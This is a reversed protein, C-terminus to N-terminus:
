KKDVMSFKYSDDHWVSTWYTVAFSHPFLEKKEQETLLTTPSWKDGIGPRKIPMAKNRIQMADDNSPVWTVPYFYWSPLSEIKDKASYIKIADYILNPGTEYTPCGNSARDIMMQMAHIWFNVGSKSIMIANPNKHNHLGCDVEGLIIDQHCFNELLSDFPKLCEFDLDAYIGGYKYMYACRVADVRKIHHDYEEYTKLFFPFDEKILNYNDEDTWLKYEYSPNCKKWTDSWLTFDETLNNDKWSQHIIKPFNETM